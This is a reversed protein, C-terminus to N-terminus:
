SLVGSRRVIAFILNILLAQWMERAKNDMHTTAMDNEIRITTVFSVFGVCQIFSEIM